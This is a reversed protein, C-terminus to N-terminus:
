ETKIFRSVFFGDCGETSPLIQVAYECPRDTMFLSPVYPKISDGKLPLNEEIFKVMKENEAKHITCTSYILVGGKKVYKSVNLIIKKQLDCIEKMSENSVNYKIDSKRAMVGLGSCPVDAILVDAMGEWEPNFVTADFVMPEVNSLNMREVNEQILSVKRDSVDLSLVHGKGKMMSAVFSTKGGPAACVDIVTLDSEDNIGTALSAMMSSEDQVLIKGELFGPLAEMGEFGEILYAGMVLKSRRYRIGAKEWLKLIEEEDSLIKVSTLHIQAMGKLIAEADKQEKKFMRVIHLPCSYQVSLRTTDDEIDSFDLLASGGKALNRLVANVFPCFEEFSRKRCLKVAEDIVASDPIKEMFLIQYASMRLIARVFPKCKEMPKKSYKDLVYDLTIKSAITGECVRKYFAKDRADLYDYKTLVDKIVLHSKRGEVDIAVLTDSVIERINDKM